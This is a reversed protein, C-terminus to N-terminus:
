LEDSLSKDKEKMIKKDFYGISLIYIGKKNNNNIGLSLFTKNDEFGVADEDNVSNYREYKEFLSYKISKFQGNFIEKAYAKNLIFSVLYLKDSYFFYIAQECKLGAFEVNSYVIYEKNSNNPRYGKCAMNASVQKYTSVGLVNGQFVRQIQAPMTLALKSFLLIIIFRKM